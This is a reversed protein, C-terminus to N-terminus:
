SNTGSTNGHKKHVEEAIHERRHMAMEHSHQLHDHLIQRAHSPEHVIETVAAVPEADVVLYVLSGLFPMLFVTLAGASVLVSATDAAMLGDKVAIGTIAVILPLATTCYFAASFRNRLAIESRTDKRITLSIVIPVCRILILGLIFIVLLAPAQAVARLDIGCGSVIFFLPVLFGYAMGELKTELSHNGEPIVYRLVFGAAFAGLVIDLDFIASFTVLLVMLLVTIRVATQSTTEARSELFLYLRTGRKKARAGASAVWICFALMVALILATKWTTRSSLLIAVALVTALEGWTGYSIVLDGIRTGSLSRDKLIPMLTGLATTTFLLATALQGQLGIAISPMPLTLGIALLFTVAWTLLGHRGDKGTISKPDIEYGALLFLFACGLEKLMTIAEGSSHILDLMNPGLVAGAAVLIVTEPVAQKPIIQAVIPAAAAVLIIITLSFFQDTM